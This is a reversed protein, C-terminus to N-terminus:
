EAKQSNKSKTKRPQKGGGYVNSVRTTKSFEKSTNTKFLSMIKDNVGGVM